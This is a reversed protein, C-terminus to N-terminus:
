RNLPSTTLPDFAKRSFVEQIMPEFFELPLWDYDPDFSCQDWKECFKVASEYYPHDRFQDRSNREEETLNSNYFMQFTGHYRVVWTVEERVFPRLIEAAVQGHTFPALVDGLDHILAAMIWDVDAQDRHARTACQLVHDLRSIQYAGDDDEMEKLHSIIRSPLERATIEDNKAIIQFDKPSGNTMATFTVRDNLSM